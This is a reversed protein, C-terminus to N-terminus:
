FEIYFSLQAARGRECSQLVSSSHGDIGYLSKRMVSLSNFDKNLGRESVQSYDGIGIFKTAGGCRGLLNRGISPPIDQLEDVIVICDEFTRGKTYCVTEFELLDSSELSDTSQYGLLHLNDKLPGIWAEQKERKTGPLYGQDRGEPTNPRIYVIKHHSGAELLQFAAVMSLLTKGSGLVGQCTIVYNNPNLISDVYCLQDLNYFDIPLGKYKNSKYVHKSSVVGTYPNRNIVETRNFDILSLHSDTYFYLAKEEGHSGLIFYSNNPISEFNFRGSILDDIDSSDTVRFINNYSM